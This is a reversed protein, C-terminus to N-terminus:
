PQERLEAGERHWLAALTLTAVSLRRKWQVVHTVHGDRVRPFSFPDQATILPLIPHRSLESSLRHYVKFVLPKKQRERQHRCLNEEITKRRVSGRRSTVLQGGPWTSTRVLLSTEFGQSTPNTLNSLDPSATAADVEKSTLAAHLIYLSDHRQHCIHRKVSLRGPTEELSWKSMQSLNQSQRKM